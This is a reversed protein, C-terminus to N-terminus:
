AGRLKTADLFTAVLPNKELFIELARVNRTLSLHKSRAPELRISADKVRPTRFHVRGDPDRHIRIIGDGFPEAYELVKGGRYEPKDLVQLVLEALSHAEKPTVPHTAHQGEATKVSQKM